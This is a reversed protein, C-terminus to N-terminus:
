RLVNEGKMLAAIMKERDISEGDLVTDVVIDREAIDDSRPLERGGSKIANSCYVVPSVIDKAEISSGGEIVATARLTGQVEAFYDCSSEAYFVGDVTVDGGVHMQCTSVLNKARISGGVILLSYESNDQLTGGVNLDGTIVYIEDKLELNGPVEVDGVVLNVTRFGFVDDGMWKATEAFKKSRAALATKVREITDRSEEPSPLREADQMNMRVM